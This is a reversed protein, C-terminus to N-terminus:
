PRAQVEIAPHECPFANRIPVLLTYVPPDLWQPKDGLVHEAVAHILQVHGGNVGDAQLLGSADCAEGQAVLVRLGEIVLGGFEGAAQVEAEDPEMPKFLISKFLGGRRTDTNAVEEYDRLKEFAEARQILGTRSEVPADVDLDQYLWVGFYAAVLALGIGVGAYRKAFRRGSSHGADRRLADALEAKVSVVTEAWGPEADAIADLDNSVLTILEETARKEKLVEYVIRDREKRFAAEVRALQTKGDTDLYGQFQEVEGYLSVLNGYDRDFM